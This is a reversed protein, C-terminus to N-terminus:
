FFDSRFVRLIIHNITGGGITAAPLDLTATLHPDTKSVAVNYAISSLATSASASVGLYPLASPWAIANFITCNVPTSAAAWSIAGSLGVTSSMIVEIYFLGSLGSPITVMRNVATIPLVGAEAHVAGNFFSSSSGGVYTIFELQTDGTVNSSLIPKKLEVEYTVWLDGLTIDNASQGSTALHM